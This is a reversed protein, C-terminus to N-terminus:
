ERRQSIREIGFRGSAPQRRAYISVGLRELEQMGKETIEYVTAKNENRRFWGLEVLREFLNNGLTGGLHGYCEKASLPKLRKDDLTAGKNAGM